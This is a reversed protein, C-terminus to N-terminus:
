ERCCNREKKKGGVGAEKMPGGGQLRRFACWVSSGLIREVFKAIRVLLPNNSSIPCYATHRLLATCVYPFCTIQEYKARGRTLTM